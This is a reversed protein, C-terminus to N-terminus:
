TRRRRNFNGNVIDAGTGYFADQRASAIEGAIESAHIKRYERTEDTHRKAILAAVVAPVGDFLLGRYALDYFVADTVAEV